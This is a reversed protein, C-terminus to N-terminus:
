RFEYLLLGDHARGARGLYGTWPVAVVRGEDSSAHVFTTGRWLLGEHVVDLGDELRRRQVFAVGISEPLRGERFRRAFERAVNRPVWDVVRTRSWPLDVWATGDRRRNLTVTSSRCSDGLWERTVDRWFPSVDLRDTTFHFRDEFTIRGGRYHARRMAAHVGGSDRAHALAVSTLMLTTCDSANWVLM